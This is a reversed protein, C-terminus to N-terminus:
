RLKRGSKQLEFDKLWELFVKESGGGRDNGQGIASMTQYTPLDGLRTIQDQIEALRIADQQASLKAKEKLLVHFRRILKRSSSPKSSTVTSQATVPQKKKRAM